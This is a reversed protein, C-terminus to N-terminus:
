AEADPEEPEEMPGEGLRHGWVPEQPLVPLNKSASEVSLKGEDDWHLEIATARAPPQGPRGNLNEFSAMLDATSENAQFGVKGDPQEVV